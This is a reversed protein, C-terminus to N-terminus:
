ELECDHLETEDERVRAHCDYCRLWRLPTFNNQATAGPEFDYGDENFAPDYDYIVEPEEFLEPPFPGRPNTVRNPVPHGQYAAVTKIVNM